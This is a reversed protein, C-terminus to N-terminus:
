KERGFSIYEVLSVTFEECGRGFEGWEWSLAGFPPHAEGIQLTMSALKGEGGRGKVTTELIPTGASTTAMKMREANEPEGPERDAAFSYNSPHLQFLFSTTFENLNNNLYIGGTFPEATKLTTGCIMVIAQKRVKTSPPLQSLFYQFQSLPGSYEIKHTSLDHANLALSTYLTNSWTSCLIQSLLPPTLITGPPNTLHHSIYATSKQTTPDLTLARSPNPSIFPKFLPNLSEFARPQTARPLHRQNNQSSPHLSVITAFMTDFEPWQIYGRPTTPNKGGSAIIAEIVGRWDLNQVSPTEIDIGFQWLKVVLLLKLLQWVKDVRVMARPVSRSSQFATRHPIQPGKYLLCPNPGEWRCAEFLKLVDLLDEDDDEPRPKMREDELMLPATAVEELALFIIRRHKRGAMGTFKFGSAIPTTATLRGSLAMLGTKFTLLDLGLVRGRPPPDTIYPYTGLRSILDYFLTADQHTTHLCKTTRTFFEIFTQESWDKIQLNYKKGSEEIQIQRVDWRERRV